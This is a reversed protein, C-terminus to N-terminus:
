SDEEIEFDQDEISLEREEMMANIQSIEEDIEEIEEDIEAIRHSAEARDRRSVKDPCFVIRSTHTLKEDMLDAKRNTLELKRNVFSVKEYTDMQIDEMMGFDRSMLNYRQQILSSEDAHAIEGDEFLVQGDRLMLTNGDPFTVHGDPLVTTGDELETEEQLVRSTGDESVVVNGDIKMVWNDAQEIRDQTEDEEMDQQAYASLCLVLCLTKVLMVNWIREM